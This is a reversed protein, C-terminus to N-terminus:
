HMMGLVYKRLAGNIDLEDLVIEETEPRSMEGLKAIKRGIRSVTALEPFKMTRVETANVQTNGSFCRFYRDFVVSNFLAAVGFMEAVTLDRDAHYIYNLHNELAIVSHPVSEAVLCGATLRRKEEKSSFRKLLVYNRTAVLHKRSEPCNRFALPWKTKQVPWLMSFPKVNHASLLPVTGGDPEDVLFERVRFMVVPGTSIKLGIDSFRTPWAEAYEVVEADEPTEPIYILMEGCSNDIVQTAFLEQTELGSFDRSPTRSISVLATQEPKKQLRTIVSEQLVNAERFTGTRSGFLHVHELSMKALLWKRFERFYLGNCFSRPTIAVLEGRDRLLTAAQALFLSYINPQGHVVDSLARAYESSKNIKFYPPNTIVGDFAALKHEVDFLTKRNSGDIDLIFDREDIVYDLHHGADRLTSEAEKMNAQLIPLVEADTEFLHVDLHKSTKSQLLRQCVALTLAGTGAGPDLLRFRKPIDSFQAAMFTAIAPPTFFQGKNKREAESGEAEFCLQRGYASELLDVKTTARAVLSDEM